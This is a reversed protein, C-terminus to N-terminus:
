VKSFQLVDGEAGIIEGSLDKYMLEGGGGRWEGLGWGLFFSMVCFCM